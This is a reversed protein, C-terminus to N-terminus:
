ITQWDVAEPRRGTAAYERAAAIATQVDLLVTTPYESEAGAYMFQVVNDTADRPDADSTDTDSHTGLSGLPPDSTAPNHGRSVLDESTDDNRLWSLMAANGGLGVALSTVEGAREVAVLTPTRQEQLQTHLTQLHTEVEHPTEATLPPRGPQWAILIQPHPTM